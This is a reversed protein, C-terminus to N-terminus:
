PQPQSSHNTMPSIHWFNLLGQHLSINSCYVTVTRISSLLRKRPVHLTLSGHHVLVTNCHVAQLLIHDQIYMSLNLRGGDAFDIISKFNRRNFARRNCKSLKLKGGDHEYAVVGSRVM